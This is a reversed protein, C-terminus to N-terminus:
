WACPEPGVTVLRPRVSEWTIGTLLGAKEIRKRAAGCSRTAGYGPPLNGSYGNMVPWGLRQAVLMATIEDQMGAFRDGETYYVFLIPDDPLHVPLARLMATEAQYAEAKSFALHNFACSEFLALGCVALTLFRGWPLKSRQTWFLDAQTAALLAVPWLMVLIVRTIARLANLGPLRWMLKWLSFGQMSITLVFLLALSLLYPLMGSRRARWRLIVALALICAIAVGIGPFLQHEWRYNPYNFVASIGAWLPEYDATLYSRPRPLLHVINAWSRSFGYLRSVTLYHCFQWILGTVLILFAASWFVRTGPFAEAWATRIQRPWFCVRDKFRKQSVLALGIALGALLLSLFVWIYINIWSQWVWCLAILGLYRLRPQRAFRELAYASLPVCFRWVLQVHNEQALVPLAFTFIFAGLVAPLHHFGQRRLVWLAIWYNAIFGLIYWGQFAGYRDLGLIRLAAFFPFTGLHTDSFALTYPYPYFFPINWLSADLGSLWRYCHELIFMNFRADFMDGPLRDFDAGMPRLVCLWICFSFFIFHAARMLWAHRASSKM